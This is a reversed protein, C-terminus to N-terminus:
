TPWEGLLEAAAADYAGLDGPVTGWVHAYRERNQPVEVGLVRFGGEALSLRAMASIGSGELPV